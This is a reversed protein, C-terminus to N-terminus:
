LIDSLDAVPTRAAAWKDGMWVALAKAIVCDDHKGAPANTRGNEEYEYIEMENTMVPIDPWTTSRDGVHMALNNIVNPKTSATFNFPHVDVSLEQGRRWALEYIADGQSGHTSDMLLIVRSGARAYQACARLVREVQEPLPIKQFRDFHVTHRAELRDIVLVSWDQHKAPDWGAVYTEGPVPQEELSGTICARPDPFVAGGDQLFEALMEQRYARETMSEKLQQLEARSLHPNATSTFHFAKYGGQGRVGRDYADFFWNHGMPTSIFLCCGETDVLAPRLEHDWSRQRIAAAEDMVAAHVATAVLGREKEATRYEITWGMRTRLWMNGPSCASGEILAALPNPKGQPTTAAVIKAHVLEATPYDPFVWWLVLSGPAHGKGVLAAAKVCLWVFALESKGFRRGADVVVFRAQCRLIRAQAPHPHWEVVRAPPALSAPM